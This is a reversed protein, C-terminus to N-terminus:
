PAKTLMWNLTGRWDVMRIPTGHTGTEFRIFRTPYTKSKALISRFFAEQKEVQFVVDHSGQGFFVPVRRKFAPSTLFSEDWLSGLLLLGNIRGGTDTRDALKWCLIGGMSGCAVFIKAGPSKGAYHDILAAVQAAGNDGFDPFDPSLYLGGNAAMLNKLRNFNGGFTFDDVGQKRSGGQGHLYLVIVAAGETKGIAVHRIDGADTKLMLDQQVKRVGPDTYQAHVRKEPVEDRQNIDRMERYDLVTYAGNDASSLTAPYAFLDDKFSKLELTQGETASLFFASAALLAPFFRFHLSM